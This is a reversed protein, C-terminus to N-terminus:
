NSVGQRLLCLRSDWLCLAGRGSRRTVEGDLGLMEGGGDFLAVYQLLSTTM